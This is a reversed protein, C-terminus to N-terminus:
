ARRIRTVQGDHVDFYVREGPRLDTLGADILTQKYVTLDGGGEDPTIVAYLQNTDSVSVTGSAM